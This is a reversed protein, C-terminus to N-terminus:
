KEVEKKWLGHKNCYAYLTMNPTYKCKLKPLEGPKFYKTIEEKDTIASIWEIFHDEEMVHNVTIIIEDGNIEYTPVHKEVAGDTSNAKVIKMEEDCCIIGCKCNCDELVRVIAKCHNCKRIILEKM